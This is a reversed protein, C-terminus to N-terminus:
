FARSFRLWVHWSPDDADLPRALYAHFDELKFAVGASRKVLHHISQIGDIPNNPNPAFWTAGADFFAGVSLDDFPWDNGFHREGDLWYAINFLASRDGTFTKFDYGNLSGTGGLAYHFQNPLNGRATGIRLRLDLRAGKALPQYRRLDLQYREFTFDGQLFGGTKQASLTTFWGRRPNDTKNRTDFHLQGGLSRTQGNQIAPNPRFETQSGWRNGFLGWSVTNTLSSYHDISAKGTIQFKRDLDYTAYLTGGERRYYDRLDHRLLAAYVSNELESIRWGDQTDTLGHVEFGIAFFNIDSKGYHTFLEAGAQYDWQKNGFAFGVEGFHTVGHTTRYKLPFRWGLFAGDVRNYRMLFDEHDVAWINSVPAVRAKHSRFNNQAYKKSPPVYGPMYRAIKKLPYINFEQGLEGMTKPHLTGVVNVLTLKNKRRDHLMAFLGVIDDNQTRMHITIRERKRTITNTTEWGLADLTQTIHAIHRKITDTQSTQVRILKINQILTDLQTNTNLQKLMPTRLSHQIDKQPLLGWANLNVYGLHTDLSHEAIATNFLLLLIIPILKPTPKM